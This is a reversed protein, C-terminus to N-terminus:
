AQLYPRKENNVHAHCRQPVSADTLPASPRDMVSAVADGLIAEIRDAHGRQMAEVAHIYTNATVAITSHGLTASGPSCVPQQASCSPAFLLTSQCPAVRRIFCVPDFRDMGVTISRHKPHMPTGYTSIRLTMRLTTLGSLPAASHSPRGRGQDRDRVQQLHLHCSDRRNASQAGANEAIVRNSNGDAILDAIERERATLEAARRGRRNMPDIEAALRRADREDGIRRYIELAQKKDAAGSSHSRRTTRFDPTM